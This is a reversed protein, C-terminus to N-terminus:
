NFIKLYFMFIRVLNENQTNISNDIDLNLIESSQNINTNITNQEEHSMLVKKM